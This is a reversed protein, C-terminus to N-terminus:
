AAPSAGCAPRRCPPAAPSAERGARADAVDLARRSAGASASATAGPSRTSHRPAPSMVPTGSRAARRQQAAVPASTAILAGCRATRPARGPRTTTSVVGGRRPQNLRLPAVPAIWPRWCTPREARRPPPAARAGSRGCSAPPRALHQRHQRTDDRSDTSAPRAAADALDDGRGPERHALHPTPRSWGVDGASSIRSSAPTSIPSRSSATSGVLDGGLQRGVGPDGDARTRRSSGDTSAMSTSRAAPPRWRAAPRARGAPRRAAARELARRELLRVPQGHDGADVRSCYTASRGALSATNRSASASM